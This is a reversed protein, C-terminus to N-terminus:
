NALVTFELRLPDLQKLLLPILDAGYELYMESFNLSREQLSHNPFLQNQLDTMRTVHDRLKKKQANLLRKELHDLGNKQKAEQAKVAGLFSPDTENAIAYLENFQAELVKKQPTFDIDVNSIQRIKKNIFSSQKLFLDSLSLNMKQIKQTQKDTVLLVSNRLLLIPFPIAMEEFMAKLELWYALEGGGGIYCINPLVIEQYLPRAIVNPSFCEPNSEIEKILAEKSFKIETNNIYYFGKKEIIRERIADKIYFYNIERPNVQIKYGNDINCLGTISSTVEKHSLNNFIDKKVFPVLQKKLTKDDGDIIVLGQEAFLENALYRTAATLTAHEVYAKKFLTRLEKAKTSTGLTTSLVELVEDLGKTTLRGVAGTADRNWKIKKGKFNFYNIEEFDHDETAMWYVPVFNNEPFQAKLQTALNIASVIKYLFYLPGTFLNLQHGTVVTFTNYSSLSKIHDQTSESVEVGAYQTKLAKGLVARNEATFHLKKEAIQNKFGELDSFNNYFPKLSEEQAIYDCILKSFYGTQRISIHEKNM